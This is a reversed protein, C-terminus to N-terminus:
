PIYAFRTSGRDKIGISLDPSSRTKEPPLFTKRKLLLLPALHVRAYASFDTFSVPFSSTLLIVEVPVPFFRDWPYQGHAALMFKTMSHVKDLGGGSLIYNRAKVMNEDKEEVAGSWLLYAAVTTSLNGEVKDTYIKWFEKEEQLSLLRDALEQVLREKKIGLSTILVIMYADTLLSNEFCYRWAGDEEQDDLLRQTLCSIEPDILNEM